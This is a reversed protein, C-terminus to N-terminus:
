YNYVRMQKLYLEREEGVLKFEIDLGFNFYSTRIHNKRLYARKILELKNALNQIEELTMTLDGNNLSSYNIIDVGGEEKGFVSVTQDPYCIFQDCEIGKQPQVVSEDGKQANVVFGLYNDRYLNTTIAVGNVAENPFSRHVLIGMALNSDDMFFMRREAYAEMSWLSSWVIKLAREITKKESNIDVTKSIYLGAGSFGECDEANTSSRFRFTTFRPDSKLQKSISQILAEDVNGNMIKARIGALQRELQDKSILGESKLLIEIYRAAESQHMYQDYFYFPIAFAVEPIKFNIIETMKNLEGFNAAKNGAYSSSKASLNEVLILEHVSLDKDLKVQKGEKVLKKLDFDKPVITYGESTVKFEVNSADLALIAENEFVLKDACIPIKRNIGLLSIHSLPTQFQTVIIGQVHPLVLPIQDLVIIDYPKISDKELEWNHIFHLRGKSTQKSVAQYTLGRYIDSPLLFPVDKIDSAISNVHITNKLLFLQESFFVSKEIKQFLQIIFKASMKDTPGLELAYKDLSKYYNINALLYNRSTDASYEDVNFVMLSHIYNLRGVCFEYHFEYDQNSVFYLQDKLRDYVVKLASVEGYKEYLPASSWEKFEAQNLIVHYDKQGYVLLSSFLILLFVLVFRM